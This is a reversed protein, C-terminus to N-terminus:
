AATKAAAWQIDLEKKAALRRWDRAKRLLYRRDSEDSTNAAYWECYRAQESCEAITPSMTSAGVLPEHKITTM